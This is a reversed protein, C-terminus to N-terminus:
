QGVTLIDNIMNDLDSSGAVTGTTGSYRSRSSTTNFINSGPGFDTLSTAVVHQAEVPIIEMAPAVYVRQQKNM